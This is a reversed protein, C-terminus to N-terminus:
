RMFITTGDPSVTVSFNEQSADLGRGVLRMMNWTPSYGDAISLESFVTMGDAVVSLRSPAGQLSTKLEWSITRTEGSSSTEATIYEGDAGSRTFWAGCDWGVVREIEDVDLAGNVNADRGFAVEVNNTPTAICTLSFAFRGATDLSAALPVNAVTETDAHAVPPLSVTLTRALVVAAVATLLIAIHRRIPMRVNYCKVCPEHQNIGIHVLTNGVPIKLLNGLDIKFAAESAKGVPVNQAFAVSGVVAFTGVVVRKMVKSLLISM